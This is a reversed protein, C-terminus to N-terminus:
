DTSGVLTGIPHGAIAREINGERKFNFVLIPIRGELCMQIASMDMVQLNDRLMGVRLLDRYSAVIDRHNGRTERNAAQPKDRCGRVSHGGQFDFLVSVFHEFSSLRLHALCVLRVAEVQAVLM